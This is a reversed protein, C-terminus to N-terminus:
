RFFLFTLLAFTPLLVCGSWLLYGFFSPMRIGRDEAIARVMFNPANGIYSLAGMYVAGGSIAELTERHAMLAQADGGAFNFVVLYTPANDLFASLVGTLWFYMTDNPSGDAHVVARTLAIAAGHDGSKLIAIAPVITVFIAAFLKAVEAMPGWNFDNAARIEASTTALSVAAIGLLLADRVVNQLELDVGAIHFVVGPRWLGSGLVCAGTAVLLAVNLWGRVRLRADPTPDQSAPREEGAKAYLHRDILYFVVLLVGVLTATPLLMATTTWFFSVGQLFGLFLPPDGLPTLAGGANAVIFIFFVLVHANHRRADNARILPRVLVMAAGTTGMLNALVAGIALITTNVRPSGHLNGFVGIGGAVTYLAFLLILFPLYELLLAHAVAEGAVGAGFVVIFPLVFAAAWGAAVKGAHHHWVAPALLPFLAISALMGAFPLVWALGMTAGDVESAHAVGPAMAILAAILTTIPAAIRASAVFVRRGARHGARKGDTRGHPEHGDDV